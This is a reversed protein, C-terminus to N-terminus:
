LVANSSQDAPAAREKGLAKRARDYAQDAYAEVAGRFLVIGPSSGLNDDIFM